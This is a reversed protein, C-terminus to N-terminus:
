AAGEAAARRGARTGRVTTFLLRQEPPDNNNLIAYFERDLTDLHDAASQPCACGHSFARRRCWVLPLRCSLRLDFAAGASVRLKQRAWDSPATFGAAALTMIQTSYAACVRTLSANRVASKEHPSVLRRSTGCVHASAIQRSSTTKLRCASRM